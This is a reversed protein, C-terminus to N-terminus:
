AAEKPEIVAVFRKITENVPLSQNQCLHEFAFMEDNRLILITQTENHYVTSIKHANNGVVEEVLLNFTYIQAWFHNAWEYVCNDCFPVNNTDCYLADFVYGLATRHTDEFVETVENLDDFTYSKLISNVCHRATKTANEVIIKGYSEDNILTIVQNTIPTSTASACVAFVEM